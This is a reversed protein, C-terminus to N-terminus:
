GFILVNPKPGTIKNNNLKLFYMVYGTAGGVGIEGGASINAV